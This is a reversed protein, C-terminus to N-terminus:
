KLPTLTQYNCIHHHLYQLPEVMLHRPPYWPHCIPFKPFQPTQPWRHCLVQRRWPHPWHLLVNPPPLSGNRFINGIAGDIFQAHPLIPHWSWSTEHPTPVLINVQLLITTAGALSRLHLWPSMSFNYSLIITYLCNRLWKYSHLPDSEYGLIDWSVPPPLLTQFCSFEWKSSTLKRKKLSIESSSLEKKRPIEEM